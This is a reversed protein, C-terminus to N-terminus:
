HNRVPQRTTRPIPRQLPSEGKTKSGEGKKLKKGWIKVNDFRGEDDFSGFGVQGAPFTKDVTRMVPKSMDDFFVEIVGTRADRTLRVKHPGKGWATGDTREQAISVRAAGNVLFISNAHADATTALHVYYFHSADEYGFFLCLDRHGYERGTQELDADLRFDSLYLGKIRAINLPSRVPPAYDSKGTLALVGNGDVKEHTWARADTMEFGDISDEFTNEYVLPDGSDESYAPTSIAM